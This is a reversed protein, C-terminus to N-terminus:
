FSKRYLLYFGLAPILAILAAIAMMDFAWVISLKDSIIGLLIPAVAVGINTIVGNIGHAKEYNAHHEVSETIMTEVVPLTGKTFIGLIVAFIIILIFSTSSALLFIFLAMFVEAVMFIRVSGHRDIFRSLVYKGLFNGIFFAATFSGLFSPNIGRKLLLFPLFIYLSASAFNDFFGTAMALIFRWNKMVEIFHLEKVKAQNEIFSDKLKNFKIFFFLFLIISIFTYLLSTFRWGIAVIIFTLVTSIGVKGLDGISTFNGLDKGRTKKDAWKSVLAFGITHFFSYGLGGIIFVLLLRILSNSFPVGLFGLAYLIISYILVRMGGAKMALYGSPLAMLIRIIIVLTGLIGVYTLNFHLDKQIFPLLLLFSAEFGDNFLHLINLLSLNSKM